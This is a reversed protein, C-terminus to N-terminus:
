DAPTAFIARVYEPRFELSLFNVGTYDARLRIADGGDLAENAKLVGAARLESELAELFATNAAALATQGGVYVQTGELKRRYIM